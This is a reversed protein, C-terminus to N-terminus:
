GVELQHGLHHAAQAVLLDVGRDDGAADDGGGISLAQSLGPDVADVRWLVEVDVLDHALDDVEDGFAGARRGRDSCRSGTLPGSSRGGGASHSRATTPPPMTPRATARSSSIRWGSARRQTSSASRLIPSCWVPRDLPTIWAPM